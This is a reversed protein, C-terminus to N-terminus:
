DAHLVFSKESICPDSCCKTDVADTTPLGSAHQALCPHPQLGRHAESRTTDAQQRSAPPESVAEGFSLSATGEQAPPDPFWILVALLDSLLSTKKM